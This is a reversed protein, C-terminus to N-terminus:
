VTAYTLAASDTAKFTVGHVCLLPQWKCTLDQQFLFPTEDRLTRIADGVNAYYDERQQKSDPDKLKSSEPPSECLQVPLLGEQDISVGRKAVEQLLSSSYWLLPQPHELQYLQELQKRIDCSPNRPVPEPLDVCTEPPKTSSAFCTRNRKLSHKSRDRGCRLGRPIFCQKHQCVGSTAPPQTTTTHASNM